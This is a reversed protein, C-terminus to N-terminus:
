GGLGEIQLATNTELDRYYNAEGEFTWSENQIKINAALVDKVREYRWFNDGTTRFVHLIWLWREWRRDDPTHDRWHADIWMRSDVHASIIDVIDYKNCTTALDFLQRTRMALPLQSLKHHLIMMVVMVASSSDESLTYAIDEPEKSFMAQFYPVEMLVRRSAKISSGDVM